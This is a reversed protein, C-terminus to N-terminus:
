VKLQAMKRMFLIGTIMLLLAIFLLTKGIPDTVLIAVYDPNMISLILAVLFPLAVLIYASLRAEGSLVRVRGQLKFRERVLHSISGLIEALNGGSQRQIIVSIAFFNLDPCDFREALGKLAEEYGVGVNIADLTRRFETGIPDDFEQAVLLLGGSFAHGAKLARAVLDLAEPLQREFKRIRRKKKLSLHVFPLMAVLVGVSLPLALSKFILALPLFAAFALGLSFLIVVGFTYRSNCQELLRKLKYIVPIHIALLLRNLWPINSLTHKVTISVPQSLRARTSLTRLEKRVRTTEPNWKMRALLFVAQIFLVVAIFIAIGIILDM